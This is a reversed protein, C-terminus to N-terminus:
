SSCRSLHGSVYLGFGQGPAVAAAASNARTDKFFAIPGPTVVTDPTFPQGPAYPTAGTVACPFGDANATQPNTHISRYPEFCPLDAATLVPPGGMPPLQFRLQHPRISSVGTPVWRAFGLSRGGAGDRIYADPIPVNHTVDVVSDIRGDAGWYVNM